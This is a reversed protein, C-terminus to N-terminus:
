INLSSRNAKALVWTAAVNVAVGLLAVLLVPLGSVPPPDVLRGLSEVAVLVAVVLLTVGNVAASLIEARKFGYTWADRAPRAALHLAWISAAIAGADTLMHGADALLALSGSAVAVVVEVLMFAVILGLATALYRQDADASVTHNHGGHSEAV